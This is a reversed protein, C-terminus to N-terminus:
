CTVWQSHGVATLLVRVKVMSKVMFGVCKIYQKRYTADLRSARTIIASGVLIRPVALVLMM